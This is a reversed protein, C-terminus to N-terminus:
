DSAPEATAGLRESDHDASDGVESPSALSKAREARCSKCCSSDNWPWLRRKCDSCTGRGWPRALVQRDVIKMRARRHRRCRHEPPYTSLRTHVSITPAQVGLLRKLRFWGSRAWMKWPRNHIRWAKQGDSTLLDFAEHGMDNTVCGELFGFKVAQTAGALPKHTKQFKMIPTPAIHLDRLEYVRDLVPMCEIRKARRWWAEGLLPLLASLLAGLLGGFLVDVLDPTLGSPTPSVATM